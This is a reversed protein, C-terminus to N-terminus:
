EYYYTVGSTMYVDGCRDNTHGAYYVKSGSISTAIMAHSYSNHFFPYGAKFSGPMTSSSHWHKQSLCRKLFLVTPIAGKSDRGGCDSLSLGGAILCQSVFNACDAGRYYNYDRNYSRCYSIAYNVAANANYSISLGVLVLLLITKM